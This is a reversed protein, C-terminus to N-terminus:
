IEFAFGQERLEQYRCSDFRYLQTPKGRKSPVTKTPHLLGTAKIKKYFNRRDLEKGLIVDYLAKLDPLSFEASLLNFGIPEYSLKGRLRRIAMEIIERHDFAWPGEPLREIAFWQATRADKGWILPKDTVQILAFYAISITRARPDRDLAGFTYLQELYEIKLGIDEEFSRFCAEEPTENERMPGGPLSWCDPFPDSADVTSRLLLPIYLAKRMFGFIVCDVHVVVPPTEQDSRNQHSM